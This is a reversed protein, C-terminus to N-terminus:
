KFNTAWQQIDAAVLECMASQRSHMSNILEHDLVTRDLHPIKKRFYALESDSFEMKIMGYWRILDEQVPSHGSFYIASLLSLKFHSAMRKSRGHYLKCLVREVDRKYKLQGDDYFVTQRLFAGDGFKKRTLKLKCGFTTNLVDEFEKWKGFYRMFLDDGKRWGDRPTDDGILTSAVDCMTTNRHSNAEDTWGSGSPTKGTCEYGCNKGFAVIPNVYDALVAACLKVDNVPIDTKAIKHLAFSIATNVDNNLDFEEFDGELLELNAFYEKEQFGVGYKRYWDCYPIMHGAKLINHRKMQTHKLSITTNPWLTVVIYNSQSEIYIARTRKGRKIVEDKAFGLYPCSFPNVKRRLNTEVAYRHFVSKKSPMRGPLWGSSTNEAKVGMMNSASLDIKGIGCDKYRFTEEVFCRWVKGLDYDKNPAEALRSHIDGEICEMSPKYKRVDVMREIEQLIPLVEPHPTYKKEKAMVLVADQIWVVPVPVVAHEDCAGRLLVQGQMGETEAM